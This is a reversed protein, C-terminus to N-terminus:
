LNANKSLQNYKCLIKQQLEKQLASTGFVKDRLEPNLKYCLINEAILPLQTHKSTYTHTYKRSHIQTQCLGPLTGNYLFTRERVICVCVFMYLCNVRMTECVIKNIRVTFNEVYSEEFETGSGFM